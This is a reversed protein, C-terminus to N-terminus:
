TVVAQAYPQVPTRSALFAVQLQQALTAVKTDKETTLKGLLEAICPESIKPPVMTYIANALILGEERPNPAQTSVSLTIPAKAALAIAPAASASTKKNKSGKPRGMYKHTCIFSALRCLSAEVM